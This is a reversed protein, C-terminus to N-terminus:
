LRARKRKTSEEGDRQVRRTTPSEGRKGRGTAGGQRVRERERESARRVAEESQGGAWWKEREFGRTRKSELREKEGERENDM